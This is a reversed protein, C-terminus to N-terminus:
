GKLSADIKELNAKARDLYNLNDESGEMTYISVAKAGVQEALTRSVAPSVMEEVFVTKVDNKRCYDVLESLKKASPEGDAFVDEVSNQELGFDRCLYAFAAHGTVFNKKKDTSFKAKYDQYLNELKAVYSDCNKQYYDSNAPDAKCLGDKINKVEIEAGKLSLWLHPDYQGREKAEGANASKISEAGKSADVEVLSANAAASVAQAAWSEMGLGNIVFVGSKALSTIDGAKPEFDHPETGDPIITTVQVKDGGVAETFEKMANFSVTVQMKGEAPKQQGQGSCASLSFAALLGLMAAAATLKKLM